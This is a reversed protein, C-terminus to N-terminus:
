PSSSVINNKLNVDEMRNGIANKVEFTNGM